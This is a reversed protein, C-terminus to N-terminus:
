HRVALRITLFSFDKTPAGTVNYTTVDAPHRRCSM